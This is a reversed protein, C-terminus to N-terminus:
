LELHYSVLLAILATALLGPGLGGYWASLLIGSLCVIAPNGEGRKIVPMELIVAGVAMTLLAFGYRELTTPNMRMTAARKAAPGDLPRVQRAPTGYIRDGM